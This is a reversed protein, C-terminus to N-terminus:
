GPRGAALIAARFARLVERALDNPTMAAARVPDWKVALQVLLPREWARTEDVAPPLRLRLTQRGDEQGLLGSLAGTFAPGLSVLPPGPPPGSQPAVERVEIVGEEDAAWLLAIWWGDEAFAPRTM